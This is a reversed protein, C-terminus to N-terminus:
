HWTFVTTSLSDWLHFNLPLHVYQWALQGVFSLKTGPSSLPLCATGCTFTEQLTLFQCVLQGVPSLKACPSFNSSLSDWLHFKLALHLCHYVLQGVPSLKAGPSSLPLCATGCTFTSHSTSM